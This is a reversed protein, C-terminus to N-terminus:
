PTVLTLSASQYKRAVAFGYKEYFPGIGTWDIICERVNRHQLEILGADLLRGGSGGGRLRASIGISGLAGWNPGLDNRWIAGGIPHATDSTQILAHGEIQSNVEWVMVRSPNEHFQQMVDARWRGPFERTFYDLLAAGDSPQAPRYELSLAGPDRPHYDCLDRQLDVISGGIQFGASTLVQTLVPHDDPVGPWIHDGDQGFTLTQAGLIEAEHIAARVATEALDPSNFALAALHLRTADGGYETVSGKLVAVWGAGRPSAVVAPHDVMNRRWIEEDIRFRDAYTIAWLRSLDAFETSSATM